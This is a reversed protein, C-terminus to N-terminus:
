FELVVDAYPGPGFTQELAEAFPTATIGFIDWWPILEFEQHTALAELQETGFPAHRDVLGYVKLLLWFVSYPIHLIPTRAGTVRRIGRIIDVYDVKEYGTINYAGSTRNRLCSEIIGCFDQVYLPQRMYRGAGPIPFVPVRRMFRSLWGLHKRDFLGFMLTPRLVVHPIGSATISAEQTKKTRTYCDRASANVVSSSIHVIYPVGHRKLAAIARDTAAVNNRLFEREDEGGIQAQCMVAAAAGACADVWPGHEAMDAEIVELGTNLRRLIAINTPHKDIAVLHDYGRRRLLLILNQGVLGAAGFILIRDSLNLM